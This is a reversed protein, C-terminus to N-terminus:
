KLHKRIGYYIGALSMDGEIYELFQEIEDHPVEVFVVLSHIAKPLNLIIYEYKELLNDCNHYKGFQDKFLTEDADTAMSRNRTASEESLMGRYKINKVSIKGKVRLVARALTWLDDTLITAKITAYVKVELKDKLNEKM